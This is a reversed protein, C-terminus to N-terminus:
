GILKFTISFSNDCSTCGYYSYMSAVIMGDPSTYKDGNGASSGDPSIGSSSDGETWGADEIQQRMADLTKRGAYGKSKEWDARNDLFRMGSPFKRVGNAILLKKMESTSEDILRWM